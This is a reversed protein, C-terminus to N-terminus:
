RVGHMMKLLKKSLLFLIVSAGGAMFVFIMFFNYLNKIEIGLFVPKEPYLNWVEITNSDPKGKKGVINKVVYLTKADESLFKAYAFKPDSGVIQKLHFESVENESAKVPTIAVLSDAKGPGSGFLNVKFNELFSLEKEEAFGDSVLEINAVSNPHMAALKVVFNSDLQVNKNMLSDTTQFKFTSAPVSTEMHVEEPYLSSLDGAFKNATATSLFWVGM